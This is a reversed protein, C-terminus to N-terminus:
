VGKLDPLVGTELYQTYAKDLNGLVKYFQLGSLVMPMGFVFLGAPILLLVIAAGLVILPIGWRKDLTTKIGFGCVAAVLTVVIFFPVIVIDIINVAMMIWFIIWEPRRKRPSVQAYFEQKSLKRDM